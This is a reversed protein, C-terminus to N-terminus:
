GALMARRLQVGHSTDNLVVDAMRLPTGAPIDRTLAVGHALGIPLLAQARSAQASTARAYVTWGGEGDLVEGARLDRKAVAM